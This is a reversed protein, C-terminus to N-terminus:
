AVANGGNGFAGHAVTGAIKVVAAHETFVVSLDIKGVGVIAIGHIHHVRVAAMHLLQNGGTNGADTGAAFIKKSGSYKKRCRLDPSGKEEWEKHRACNFPLCMVLRELSTM